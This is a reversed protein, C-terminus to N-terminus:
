SISHVHMAAWFRKVHGYIARASNLVGCRLLSLARSVQLTSIIVDLRLQHLDGTSERLKVYLFLFCKGILVEAELTGRRASKLREDDEDEGGGLVRHIEQYFDLPLHPLVVQAARDLGVLGRFGM